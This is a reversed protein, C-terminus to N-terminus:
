DQPAWGAWIEERLHELEEGPSFFQRLREGPEGLGEDSEDLRRDGRRREARDPLLIDKDEAEGSKVSLRAASNM